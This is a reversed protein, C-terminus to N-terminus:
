LRKWWVEKLKDKKANVVALNGEWDNCLLQKVQQRATHEDKRQRAFRKTFRDIRESPTTELLHDRYATWTKFGNPLEKTDYIQKENGYLAAAHVGGLRNLLRDYMEPEFEQLDALCRFSQEHILNSVRMSRMNTGYKAFMRDYHKNYQLGEDAIYKWVDGFFWDYLPYFRWALDTKTSKTSWRVDRWGARKTVARFRNFSETSRLGVLHATPETAQAEQWEFFDYFRPPYDADIEHISIPDKPRLWEEGPWWSRLMDDKHSTANTMYMPAQVWRPIVNEGYMWTKIMENTSDYEAEQDLFFLVVKRNRRAAEQIVLHHMVTSDKGGSVSVVINEFNDFVMSIREKAAELVTKADKSYRIISM